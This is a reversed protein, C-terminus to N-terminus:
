NLGADPNNSCSALLLAIQGSLETRQENGLGGMNKELATMIAPWNDGHSAVADQVWGDLLAILAVPTM